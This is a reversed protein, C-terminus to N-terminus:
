PATVFSVGMPIPRAQRQAVLVLARSVVAYSSMCKKTLAACEAGLVSYCGPLHSANLDPALLMVDSVFSESSERHSLPMLVSEFNMNVMHALRQNDDVESSPESM